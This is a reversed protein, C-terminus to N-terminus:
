CIFQQSVDFQKLLHVYDLSCLNSQAHRGWKNTIAYGKFAKRSIHKNAEKNKGSLNTNLDIREWRKSKSVLTAKTRKKQLLHIIFQLHVLYNWCVDKISHHIDSLNSQKLHRWQQSFPERLALCNPKDRSSKDKKIVICVLTYQWIILYASSLLYAAIIFPFHTNYRNCTFLLLILNKNFSHFFTKKSSPPM